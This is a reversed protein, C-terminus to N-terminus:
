GDIEHRLTGTRGCADRVDLVIRRSGSEPWPEPISVIDVISAQGADFEVLPGEFVATREGVTEMAEAPGISIEIAVEFALHDPSPNDVLLGLVFHSGGQVGPILEPEEGPLLLSFEGAGNGLALLLEDELECEDDVELLGGDGCGLADEACPGDGGSSAIM